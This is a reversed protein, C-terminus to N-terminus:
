FVSFDHLPQFLFFDVHVFFFMSTTASTILPPFHIYSAALVGMGGGRVGGGVVEWGESGM